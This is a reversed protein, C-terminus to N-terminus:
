KSLGICPITHLENIDVRQSQIEMNKRPSKSRGAYILFKTEEAIGHAFVRDASSEIFIVM